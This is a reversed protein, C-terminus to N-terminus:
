QGTIWEISINSCNFIWFFIIWWGHNNKPPNEPGAFFIGLFRGSFLAAPSAASLIGAPGLCRHCWASTDVSVPPPSLLFVLTHGRREEERGRTEIRSEEWRRREEGSRDKEEAGGEGRECALGRSGCRAASHPHRKKKGREKESARQTSLIRSRM